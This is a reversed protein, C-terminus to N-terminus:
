RSSAERMAQALQAPTWENGDFRRYLKGHTDLVVTRLNHSFSEAERAVMLQVSPILIAMANTDAAGFMWRGVESGRYGVAHKRLIEPSDTEYDFSLSLFMWNTPANSDSLLQNRASRFQKLM